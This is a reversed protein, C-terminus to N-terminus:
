SKKEENKLAEIENNISQILEDACIYLNKNKLKFFSIMPIRNKLSEYKKLKVARKKDDDRQKIEEYEGILEKLQKAMKKIAKIDNGHSSLELLLDSNREFKSFIMEFEDSYEKIAERSDADIIEDAKKAIAKYLEKIKKIDPLKVEDIYDEYDNACKLAKKLTGNYCNDIMESAKVLVTSIRENEKGLSNGNFKFENYLTIMESIIERSVREDERKEILPLDAFFGKSLSASKYVLRDWLSKDDVHNIFNENINRKNIIQDLYYYLFEPKFESTIDIGKKNFANCDPKYRMYNEHYVEKLEITFESCYSIVESEVFDSEWQVSLHDFYMKCCTNIFDDSVVDPLAATRDVMDLPIAFGIFCALSRGVKDRLLSENVKLGTKKVLFSSLCGIGLFCYGDCYFVAYRLDDLIDLKDMANSVYDRAENWDFDPRVLYSSIFDVNKTRSCIFPIAKM